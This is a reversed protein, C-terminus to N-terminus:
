FMNEGEEEVEQEGKSNPYIGGGDPIWRQMNSIPAQELHKWQVWTKDRFQM